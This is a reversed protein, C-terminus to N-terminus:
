LKSRTNSRRPGAKGASCPAIICVVEILGSSNVACSSCGDHNKVLSNENKGRCNSEVFNHEYRSKFRERSTGVNQEGKGIESALFLRDRRLRWSRVLEKLWIRVCTWIALAGDILELVGVFNLFCMYLDAKSRGTAREWQCLYLIGSVRRGLFLSGSGFSCVM